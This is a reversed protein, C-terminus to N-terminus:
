ASLFKWVFICLLSFHMFVTCFQIPRVRRVDVKFQTKRRKARNVAKRIDYINEKFLSVRCTDASASTPDGACMHLSENLHEYFYGLRKCTQFNLLPINAERLVSSLRFSSGAM